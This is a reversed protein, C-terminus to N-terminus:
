DNNGKLSNMYGDFTSHIFITSLRKLMMPMNVFKQDKLPVRHSDIDELFVLLEFPIALLFMKISEEDVACNNFENSLFSNMKEHDIESEGCSSKFETNIKPTGMDVDGKPYGLRDSPISLFLLFDKAKYFAGDPTCIREIFYNDRFLKNFIKDIREEVM